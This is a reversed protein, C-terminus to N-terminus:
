GVVLHADRSMETDVDVLNGNLRTTSEGGSSAPSLVLPKTTAGPEVFFLRGFDWEPSLQGQSIIYNTPWLQM